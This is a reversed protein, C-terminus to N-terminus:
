RSALRESDPLEPDCQHLFEACRQAEDAEGIAAAEARLGDLSRLFGRNPEHSWRVYGSGRWGSKRLQDLGRHYGARYYAYAEVPDRALAGLQAWGDLFRPHAAVVAAVAERRAGAPEDATALAASLAEVVADPEPDLLTEPLGRSLNVQHGEPGHPM